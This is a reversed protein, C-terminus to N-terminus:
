AGIVIVEVVVAVGVDTVLGDGVTGSNGVQIIRGINM